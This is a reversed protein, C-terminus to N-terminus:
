AGNITLSIIRAICMGTAYAVCTVSVFNLLQQFISYVNFDDCLIVNVVTEMISFPVTSGTLRTLIM